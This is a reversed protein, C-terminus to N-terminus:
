NSNSFVRNGSLSFVCLCLLGMLRFILFILAYPSRLSGCLASCEYEILFYFFPPSISIAWRSFVRKVDFRKSVWTYHRVQSPRETSALVDSCVRVCVAQFVHASARTFKSARWLTMCWENTDMKAVKLSVCMQFSVRVEGWYTWTVALPFSETFGECSWCLAFSWLTTKRLQQSNIISIFSYKWSYVDWLNAGAIEPPKCTKIQRTYM